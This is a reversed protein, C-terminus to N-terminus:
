EAQKRKREKVARRSIVVSLEYLIWLPIFVLFCSFWDPPTIIEALIFLVLIAYRRYDQMLKPTLLGIRSLFYVIVPLEFVFGMGFIMDSMTEYYNDATIINQFQNSLHYGAFFNITYPAIIYYAFLVGFFFLISCWFVLGRAYKVENPKLAPKIFKWVEWIVYPFSVILGIMMSSSLAMVFQGALQNNQFNIKIDGLCLSSIHTVKALECLWKYAIFDPQAPALIVHAFIWEIKIFVLIAAIIVVILARFIHWRLAEIHDLFTM